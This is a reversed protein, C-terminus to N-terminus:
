PVRFSEVNFTFVAERSTTWAGDSTVFAECRIIGDGVNSITAVYSCWDVFQTIISGGYTKGTLTSTINARLIQADKPLQIDASQRYGMEGAGGASVGAPIRVSATNQSVQAPMPFDSNITYSNTKIM